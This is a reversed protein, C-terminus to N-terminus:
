CHPYEIHWQGNVWDARFQGGLHPDADTITGSGGTNPQFGPPDWTVSQPDPTGDPRCGKENDVYGNMIQREATGQDGGDPAPGLPCRATTGCTSQRTDALAIHAPIAFSLLAAVAVVPGALARVGRSLCSKMYHM